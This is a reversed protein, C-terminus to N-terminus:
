IYTQTNKWAQRHSISTSADAAADGPGEGEAPIELRQLITNHTENPGLITHRLTARSFAGPRSKVFKVISDEIKKAKETQGQLRYARELCVDAWLTNIPGVKARWKLGAELFSSAEAYDVNPPLKYTITAGLHIPLLPDCEEYTGRWPTQVTRVQNVIDALTVVKRMHDVAEGARSPICDKLLLVLEWRITDTNKIAIYKALISEM